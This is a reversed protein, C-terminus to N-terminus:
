INSFLYKEDFMTDVNRIVGKRSLLNNPIYANSNEKELEKNNILKNADRTSKSQVQIRNLVVRDKKIINQIHLKKHLIHGVNM